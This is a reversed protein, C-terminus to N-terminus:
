ASQENATLLYECASLEPADCVAIDIDYCASLETRLETCETVLADCSAVVADANDCAEVVANESVEHEDRVYLASRVNSNCMSSVERKFFFFFTYKFGLCYLDNSVASYFIRSENYVSNLFITYEENTYGRSLKSISQRTLRSVSMQIILFYFFLESICIILVM